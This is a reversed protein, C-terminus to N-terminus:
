WGQRVLPSATLFLSLKFNLIQFRGQTSILFTIKFDMIGAMVAALRARVSYRCNLNLVNASLHWKVEEKQGDGEPEQGVKWNSGCVAIMKKAIYVGLHAEKGRKAM